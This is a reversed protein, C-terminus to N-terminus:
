YWEVSLIVISLPVLTFFLVVSVKSMIKRLHYRFSETEEVELLYNYHRIILYNNFDINDNVGWIGFGNRYSKDQSNKINEYDNCLSRYTWFKPIRYKKACSKKIIKGGCLFLALCGLFIVVLFLPADYLVERFIATASIITLLVSVFVSSWPNNVEHTDHMKEITYLLNFYKRSKIIVYEYYDRIYSDDCDSLAPSRLSICDGDTKIDYTNTNDHLIYLESRQSCYNYCYISLLFLAYSIIFLLVPVFM